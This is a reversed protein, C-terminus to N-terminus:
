LTSVILINTKQKNQMKKKNNNKLQLCSVSVKVPTAYVLM